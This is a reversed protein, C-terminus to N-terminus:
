KQKNIEQYVFEAILVSESWTIKGDKSAALIMTCLSHYFANRVADPALNVKSLIYNAKNIDGEINAAGNAIDLSLIMSPLNKKLFKRLSAMAINDWTGPIISTVAFDIADGTSSENVNKLENLVKIILPATEKVEKNAKAWISKVFTLIQNILKKM